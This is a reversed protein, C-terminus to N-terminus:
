FKQSKIVIIIKKRKKRLKHDDILFVEQQLEINYVANM